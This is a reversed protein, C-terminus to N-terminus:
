MEHDIVKLTQSVVVGVALRNIRRQSDKPSDELGTETQKARSLAEYNKEAAQIESQFGKYSLAANTAEAEAARMFRDRQSAAEEFQQKREFSTLEREVIRPKLRRLTQEAELVELTHESFATRDGKYSGLYQEAHELDGRPGNPIVRRGLDELKKDYAKLVSQFGRTAASELRARDTYANAFDDLGLSRYRESLMQFAEAKVEHNSCESFAKDRGKEILATEPSIKNRVHPQSPAPIVATESQGM